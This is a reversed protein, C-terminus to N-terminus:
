CKWKRLSKNIRSNPDSSTKKSTLKSKMGRMRACFSKHRPGRPTPPKLKGKYSKRGKANLGGNPNKGEKRTWAASATIIDVDSAVLHTYADEVSTFHVGLGEGAAAFLKFDQNHEPCVWADVDESDIDSVLEVGLLDCTADAHCYIRYM